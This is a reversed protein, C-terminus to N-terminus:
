VHIELHEMVERGREGSVQVLAGSKEYALLIFEAMHLAERGTGEEIQTRCSFGDAVIPVSKPARCIAPFLDLEAVAQSVAYHEKEFGFSGAMGCCTKQPEEVEVDMRELLNRAAHANLVAKQHCHGHFIVKGGFKPVAIKKEEIFESLLYSLTGMREADRDTPFLSLTEDRFVSATSPECFIVPVGASTFPGVQNLTTRIERKALPLFGYHILPRPSTLRGPPLVVDYGWHRLLVYTALLTRPYFYNNFVDPFLLIQPRGKARDDRHEEYWDVFTRRAFKPMKRQPAIGALEKTILSLGPARGLFNALMPMKSGLAAWRRVFAMAYAHRPRLRWRYYHAHFESKWTAIDVNVPCQQKCGKCGLCLDLSDFVAKSRWGAKILGGHFMEFLLHARGRTTDNEERTVLFSPCMFADEPKRCKGVGVCRLTARAFSNEDEPFRFYTRPRWPRYRSGLRLNDDIAYPDVVKGPNMRHDPDWVAKFEDFAQVLEPGFMKPLFMARSQGDGHEGSLSGHYSVVLDTAEDMFQKWEQVGKHTMLDFGIRCHICGQGLHGYLSAEYNHKGFLKRLDRLYDGVRSPPVASDEWGPWMLPLGPVNATAGLGSERIEWVTEEEQRNTFLKMSPANKQKRLSERCDKAKRDSEDKTDGGFEVLLWGGGEPLLETDEPHLHKLKMYKILLHDLGELGIPGYEMIQTVHDGASYVDPYGLVLLSRKPPNPVLRVTAELITVCTAETGVLARAVNFGKEPLLEDLNYGSVRRPIDPYRQRILPAYKDRIDKLTQYIQGRRGGGAILRKLEAESTPGVRLQVGDYTVIDMEHVNDTTRGAMVSHIGCSNNGMMGGLTCHSHTAPDPGFTLGYREIAANRLQDLIVGPEITATSRHEDMDLIHHRYKSHDIVVASNCTQGALATGCGRSLIPAGYDHCVAVAAIVGDRSRPIVVGLPVQRYNSGDTAYLGRSGIDFRVEGDVRAKLDEQLGRVDVRRGRGMGGYKTRAM